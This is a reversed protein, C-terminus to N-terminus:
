GDSLSTSDKFSIEVGSHVVVKLTRIMDAAELLASRVEEDSFDEVRTAVNMIGIVADSSTGSGPIGVYKRLDRIEVVSRMLLRRLETVSQLRRGNASRILEAVNSNEDPPHVLRM